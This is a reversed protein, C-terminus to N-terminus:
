EVRMEKHTDKKRAIAEKVEENWWQTGKIQKRRAVYKM